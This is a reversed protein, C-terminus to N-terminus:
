NGVVLREIGDLDYIVHRRHRAHSIRLIPRLLPHLWRPAPLSVGELHGFRTRGETTPEAAMGIVYLQPRSVMWCWGHRLDVDFRFPIPFWPARARIDLRGRREGLIRLWAVDRDFQPVSVELDTVRSWVQEVPADFTREVLVVGPLTAALLRLRQLDSLEATPWSSM